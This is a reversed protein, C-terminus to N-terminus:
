GKKGTLGQFGRMIGRDAKRLFELIYDRDVTAEIETEIIEIAQTTNYGKVFLIRYVDQIVHIQEATFGRRRLGVSNIGAYSLPERAAKVYPPVDKRVLSGGGVFAHAGIKVFQQVATLGGLNVYEEIEIHGALTVGNAIVCNKGIHCDHAVHVYAMLLSGAGITTKHSAKTGRNLTVYERVIVNNGLEVLSYEGKFKLDQPVAGVVAGPFIKCGNGIRSGDMITVHPGIWTDDGIVVDRGITTFPEITVNQGIKAEPHIYRMYHSSGNLHPLVTPQETSLKM